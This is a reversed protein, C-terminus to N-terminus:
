GWRRQSSYHAWHLVKLGILVLSVPPSMPEPKQSLFLCCKEEFAAPPSSDEEPHSSILIRSRADPGAPLFDTGPLYPSFKVKATEKWGSSGIEGSSWRAKEAVVWCLEKLFGILTSNKTVQVRFHRNRSFSQMKTFVDRHCPFVRWPKMLDFRFVMIEIEDRNRHRFNRFMKLAKYLWTHGEVGQYAFGSHLWKNFQIELFGNWGDTLFHDKKCRELPLWEISPMYCTSM